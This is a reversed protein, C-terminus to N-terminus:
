FSSDSVESILLNKGLLVNNVSLSNGKKIDQKLVVLRSDCLIFAAMIGLIEM